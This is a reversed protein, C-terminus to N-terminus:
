YGRRESIQKRHQLFKDPNVWDIGDYVGIIEANEPPSYGECIVQMGEENMGLWRKLGRAYRVPLTRKLKSFNM